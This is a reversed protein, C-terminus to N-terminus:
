KYGSEMPRVNMQGCEMLSHAVPRPGSAFRKGCNVIITGIIRTIVLSIMCGVKGFLFFVIGYKRNIM